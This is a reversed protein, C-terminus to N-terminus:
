LGLIFKFLDASIEAAAGGGLGGRKIYAVVTYRAQRHDDFLLGAFCGDFPNANAPGTGTKGGIIWKSNPGLRSRIGKATGREVNDILASELKSATSAEMIKNAAPSPNAPPAATTVDRLAPQLMIGRNGIAQMFRSLHLLTATFSGEGISLTSAWESTGTDPSLNTCSAVPTLRSQWQPARTQWFSTDIKQEDDTPCPPFGYHNLDDLVVQSGVAERLANALLRGASDSGTVLMERVDTPAGRHSANIQHEHDWWSAALLVKTLSLPLVPSTVDINLNKGASDPPAPVSAFAVLAGTRVDQIVIAGALHRAAILRAAEENAAACIAHQALANACPPNASAIRANLSVCAALIFLTRLTAKAQLSFSRNSQKMSAFIKDGTCSLREQCHALTVRLM